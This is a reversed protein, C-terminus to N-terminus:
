PLRRVDLTGSGTAFSCGGGGGGGLFGPAADGGCKVLYYTPHHDILYEVAVGVAFWVGCAILAAAIEVRNM